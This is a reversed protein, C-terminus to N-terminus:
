LLDKLYLWTIKWVFCIPPLIILVLLVIGDNLKKNKQTHKNTKRYSLLAMQTEHHIRYLSALIIHQM